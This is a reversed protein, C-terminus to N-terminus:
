GTLTRTPKPDYALNQLNVPDVISRWLSLVAVGAIVATLIVYFLILVNAKKTLKTTTLNFDRITGTLELLAKGIGTGIKTPVESEVLRTIERYREGVETTDSLDKVIVPESQNFSFEEKMNEM